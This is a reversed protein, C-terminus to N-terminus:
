ATKTLLECPREKGNRRLYENCAHCRGKRMPKSKKRCNTCVKAPIIRRNESAQEKLTAWRCNDPEYNGNVDIRDITHSKTPKQGMDALFNEFSDLWRQCIAIGRGGYNHYGNTTSYRCRIKMGVWTKYEPLRSKADEDIPRDQWTCYCGTSAGSVMSNASVERVTGCDCKCLRKQGKRLEIVTWRGFREGVLATTASPRDFVKLDKGRIRHSSALSVAKRRSKGTRQCVEDLNNCSNWIEVFTTSHIESM